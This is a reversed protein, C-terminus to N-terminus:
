SRPAGGAEVVVGREATHQPGDKGGEATPPLPSPTPTAVAAPARSVALVQIGHLSFLAGRRLIMSEFLAVLKLLGETYEPPASPANRARIYRHGVEALQISIQYSAEIPRWCTLMTPIEPWGIAPGVPLVGGLRPGRRELGVQWSPVQREAQVLM